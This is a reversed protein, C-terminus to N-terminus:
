SAGPSLVYRKVGWKVGRVAWGAIECGEAEEMAAVGGGGGGGLPSGVM